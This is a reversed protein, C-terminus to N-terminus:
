RDPLRISPGTAARFRLCSISFEGWFFFNKKHKLFLFFSLSLFFFFLFLPRFLFGLAFFLLVCFEKFSGLLSQASIHFPDLDRSPQHARRGAEDCLIM